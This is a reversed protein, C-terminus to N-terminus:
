RAEVSESSTRAQVTTKGLIGKGGFIAIVTKLDHTYGVSRALAVAINHPVFGM